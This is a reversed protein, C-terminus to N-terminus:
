PRNARKTKREQMLTTIALPMVTISGTVYDFIDEIMRSTINADLVAMESSWKKMADLVWVDNILIHNDSPKLTVPINGKSLWEQYEQWDRNAQDNPIYSNLNTDYVGSNVERYRRM